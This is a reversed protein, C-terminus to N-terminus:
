IHFITLVVMMTKSRISGLDTMAELLRDELVRRSYQLSSWIRFSRQNTAQQM